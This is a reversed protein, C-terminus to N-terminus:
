PILVVRRGLDARGWVEEVDSLPRADVAAQIEGKGAAQLLDHYANRADDFNPQTGSGSGVIELPTSRLANANFTVTDGATQGVQVHLTREVQTQPHLDSHTLATFLAQAPAGWVYDIILDVGRPHLANEFAEVLAVEPQDLDIADDAGLRLLQALVAQNRGAALVRGAGHRKALQVAIRGSAGTAGLILVTQDPALQGRWIVAKWAAMGPNTIAAATVDDIEDPLEFWAGRRVLAREAMGGYPPVAAFFAVRTGDELTGVGDAGVVVPFERFSAYHSGDAMWRDVPKLAAAAVQVVTQGEGAVPDAFTEFRPRQATSHLVAAKM